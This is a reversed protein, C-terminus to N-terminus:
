LERERIREFYGRLVVFWKEVKPYEEQFIDSFIKEEFGYFEMSEVLGCLRDVVVKLSRLADFVRQREEM